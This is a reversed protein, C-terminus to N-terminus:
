PQFIIHVDVNRRFQQGFPQRQSPQFDVANMIYPHWLLLDFPHAHGRRIMQHPVALLNQQARDAFHLRVGVRVTQHQRHHIIPAVPQFLANGARGVQEIILLLPRNVRRQPGREGLFARFHPVAVAIGGFTHDQLLLGQATDRVAAHDTRLLFQANRIFVFADDEHRMVLRIHRARRKLINQAIHDEVDVQRGVQGAAEADHTHRAFDGRQQALRHAIRRIRHLGIPRRDVPQGRDSDLVRFIVLAKGQGQQAIGFHLRRRFPHLAAQLQHALARDIINHIDGIVDGELNALRQVGEIIVLQHRPGPAAGWRNGGPQRFRAFRQIRQVFHRAFQFWVVDDQQIVGTNEAQAPNDAPRFCLDVVLRAVHQQFRRVPIKDVHPAGHLRLLHQRIRPNAEAPPHMGALRNQTDFAPDFQHALGAPPLNRLADDVFVRDLGFRHLDIQRNGFHLADQPYFKGDLCRGINQAPQFKVHGNFAIHQMHDHRIM